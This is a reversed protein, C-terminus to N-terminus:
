TSKRNQKRKVVLERARKIYKPKGTLIYCCPVELGLGFKRPGFVEADITGSTSLHQPAHGVIDDNKLVAVAHSDHENGSEM